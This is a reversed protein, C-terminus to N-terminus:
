LSCVGLLLISEPSWAHGAFDGYFECASFGAASLLGALVEKRVPYLPVTERIEINAEADALELGFDIRGDAGPASYHREFRFGAGEIVPLDRVAHDLIRDYNLVQFVFKGDSELLARVDAFFAAIEDPGSLHPLTNGLCSVASFSYGPFLRVIERMDAEYLEANETENSSLKEDAIELLDDDLDLGFLLDFEASFASLLTGTACGVDLWSRRRTSRFVARLFDKETEDYPFIRDYYPAIGSYSSM